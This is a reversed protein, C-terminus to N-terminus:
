VCLKEDRQPNLDGSRGDSLQREEDQYLIMKILKVLAFSQTDLTEYGEVCPFFRDELIATRAVHSRERGSQTDDEQSDHVTLIVCFIRSTGAHSSLLTAPQGRSNKVYQNFRASM